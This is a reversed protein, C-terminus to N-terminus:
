AVYETDFDLRGHGNNDITQMKKELAPTSEGLGDLSVSGSNSMVLPLLLSSVLVDSALRALLPKPSDYFVPTMHNSVPECDLDSIENDATKRQLEYVRALIGDVPFTCFVHRNRVAETDIIGNILDREFIRADVYLAVNAASPVVYIKMDSKYRPRAVVKKIFLNNPVQGPQGLSAMMDELFERDDILSTDGPRASELKMLVSGNATSSTLRTVRVLSFDSIGFLSSVATNLANFTTVLGMSSNNASNANAPGPPSASASSAASEDGAKDVNRGFTKLVKSSVGALNVLNLDILRVRKLSAKGARLFFDLEHARLLRLVHSFDVGCLDDLSSESETEADAGEYPGHAVDHSVVQVLSSKRATHPTIQRYIEYVSPCLILRVRLGAELLKLHLKSASDPLAHTGNKLALKRRLAIDVLRHSKLLAPHVRLRLLKRTRGRPSTPTALSTTSESSSSYPFASGSSVGSGTSYPTLLLTAALDVLSPPSRSESKSDSPPSDSNLLDSIGMVLRVPYEFNAAM